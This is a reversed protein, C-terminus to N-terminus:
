AKEMELLRKKREIGWRYGGLDGNERVVRHCPIVLAVSNSACARAVARVANPQGIAEAIDGYSRTSGYPIAQLASWVRQQFATAQVDVPLDFHPRQGVLYDLIQGVSQEMMSDNATIEAAAFESRLTAALADASDGLRVACLGRETAAVLMYGLPCARVTYQIRNGKGQQRYHTPTMGLRENSEGYMVSNTNYGSAYIANTVTDGNKLQTKLRQSRLATAYQKPSVGVLRKFTRQLHYPSLHFRDALQNLSLADASEAIAACVEQMLALNPEPRNSSRPHCRLCARYGATEAEEPSSFFEVNERKPQRASCSPKCYIGTTRVAFFFTGDFAADRAVVAQWTESTNM